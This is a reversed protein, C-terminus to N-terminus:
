DWWWYLFGSPALFICPVFCWFSLGVAMVHPLFRRLRSVSGFVITLVPWVFFAFVLFWTLSNFTVDAHLNLSPSFGQNGISEPWKGLSNYMHIALSFFMALFAVGPVLFCPLATKWQAFATDRATTSAFLLVVATIAVLLSPLALLFVPSICSNM